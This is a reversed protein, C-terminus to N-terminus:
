LSLWTAKDLISIADKQKTSYHRLCNRYWPQPTASSTLLQKGVATPRNRARILDHPIQPPCLPAATPKRRTSRNGRGIMGVVAECEEDDKMMRPQYLLGTTAETIASETGFWRL